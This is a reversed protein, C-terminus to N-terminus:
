LDKKQKISMQEEIGHLGLRTPGRKGEVTTRWKEKPVRVAKADCSKSDRGKMPVNESRGRFSRRGRSKEVLKEFLKRKWYRM